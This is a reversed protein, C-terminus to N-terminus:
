TAEPWRHECYDIAVILLAAVVYCSITGLTLWLDESAASM